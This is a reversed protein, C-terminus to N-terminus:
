SAPQSISSAEHVAHLDVKGRSWAAGAVAEVFWGQDVAGLHQM